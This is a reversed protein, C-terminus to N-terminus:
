EVVSLATANWYEKDNKRTREALITVINGAKVGSYQVSEPYVYVATTDDGKRLVLRLGHKAGAIFVVKYGSFTCMNTTDLRHFIVDATKPALAPQQTAVTTAVPQYATILANLEDITMTANAVIGLRECLALLQQKNM